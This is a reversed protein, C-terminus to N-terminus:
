RNDVDVDELLKGRQKKLSSEARLQVPKGGTKEKDMFIQVKNTKRIIINLRQM